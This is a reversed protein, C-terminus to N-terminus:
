RSPWLDGSVLHLGLLSGPDEEGQDGHGSLAVGTEDQTRNVSPLRDRGRSTHGGSGLLQTGAPQSPSLLQSCRPGWNLVGQVGALGARQPSVPPVFEGQISLVGMVCAMPM